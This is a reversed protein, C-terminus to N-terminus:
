TFGSSVTRYESLLTEDIQPQEPSQGSQVRQEIDHRLYCECLHVSDLTLLWANCLESRSM